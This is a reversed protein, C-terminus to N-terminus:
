SESILGRSAVADYMTQLVETLPPGSNDITLADPAAIAPSIVRNKDREDREIIERQMEKKLQEKELESLLREESLQTLRRSVRTEVSAEIFLKLAADPFIVTGMDRGEAVLNEGTFANRQVDHLATRVGALAAVRSTMESVRPGYLAENIPKENLLMLSSRDEGVQLSLKNSSILGIVAQEDHPSISSTLALYGVARYLIGTNLHVYGIEKALLRSLTTKGSGALGDVAIVTRKIEM